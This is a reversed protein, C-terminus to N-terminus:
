YTCRCLVQMIDTAQAAPGHVSRGNSIILSPIWRPLKSEDALKNITNSPNKIDVKALASTWNATYYKETTVEDSYSNNLTQLQSVRNKPSAKDTTMPQGKKVWAPRDRHEGNPYTEHDAQSSTGQGVAKFWSWYLLDGRLLM